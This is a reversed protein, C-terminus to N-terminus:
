HHVKHIKYLLPQHLAWHFWFLITDEVFMMIVFQPIMWSLNPIKSPNIVLSYGLKTAIFLNIPAFVM